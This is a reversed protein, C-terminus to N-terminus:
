HNSQVSVVTSALAVLAESSTRRIFIGRGSQMALGGFPNDAVNIDIM